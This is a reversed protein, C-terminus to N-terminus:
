GIVILFHVTRWRDALGTILIWHLNWDSPCNRYIDTAHALLYDTSTKTCTTLCYSLSLTLSQVSVVLWKVLSAACAVKVSCKGISVSWVHSVAALLLNIFKLVSHNHLQKYGDSVNGSNRFTIELVHEVEFNNDFRWRKTFIYCILMLTRVDFLWNLEM